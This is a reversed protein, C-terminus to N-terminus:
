CGVHAETQGFDHAREVREPVGGTVPSGRHRIRRGVAAGAASVLGVRVPHEQPHLVVLFGDYNM